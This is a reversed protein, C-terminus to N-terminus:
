NAFDRTKLKIVIRKGARDFVTQRPKLIIGEAPHDEKGTEEKAVISFFGKKAFEKAEELTIYGMDPVTKVGLKNAVDQVDKWDLWWDRKDEPNHVVVDFLRFTKEASLNGGGKQIGPGYGEGYLYVPFPVFVEGKAACEDQKKKWFVEKFKDVNFIGVLADYLQAHIQANESRGGFKMQGDETLYVCVNMGDIKETMHWIKFDAYVPQRLEETVKFTKEDRNFLTEIKHYEKM